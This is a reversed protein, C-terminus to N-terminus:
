KLFPLSIGVAIVQSVLGRPVSYTEHQIKDHFIFFRNKKWGFQHQAFSIIDPFNGGIIGALVPATFMRDPMLLYAVLLGAALDLAAFLVTHKRGYFVNWHTFTDLFFHLLVGIGFAAPTNAVQTGVAAAALTHTFALM